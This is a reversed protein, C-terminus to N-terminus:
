WRELYTPERFTARFTAGNGNEVSIDGDLQRALDRVLKMGLSNTTELSFGEPLGVGNDRVTLMYTKDGLQSMKIWLDGKAGDVFAHKFVNSILENIILGCPVAADVGLSFNEIDTHVTVDKRHVGYTRILDSILDTVYEIFDVREIDESRYLKEHILAIAKIRSQCDRLIERTAQEAAGISELYLLSNVVQLNNKVRHHIEEKLLVERRLAERTQEEAAKRETIDTQTSIWVHQYEHHEFASINAYCWFPTGGKKITRLEGKWVGERELVGIIGEVVQEPSKEGPANLISVPKGILEGPGYGFMEEFNPNTYIITGDDARVVNVGEAMNRIIEGQFRLEKEARQQQTVDRVVARVLKGEQTNVPSLMIDVPFETGDKRRGFLELGAGMPRTHPDQLYQSRHGAHEHVFRHPVLLEVNQGVLEERTYGFFHETQSNARIIRGNENVLLIAYPAFEFLNYFMERTERLQSEVGRVIEGRLKEAAEELEKRQTIDQCTGSARL